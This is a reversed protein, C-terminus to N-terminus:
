TQLKNQFSLFKYGHCWNCSKSPLVAPKSKTLKTSIFLFLLQHLASHIIYLIVHVVLYNFGSGKASKYHLSVRFCFQVSIGTAFSSCFTRFLSEFRMCVIDYLMSDFGWANGFIPMPWEAQIPPKGHWCCSAYSVNDEPHTWFMHCFSGYSTSTPTNYKRRCLVVCVKGRVQVSFFQM